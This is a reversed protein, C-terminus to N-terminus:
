VENSPELGLEARRLFLLLVQDLLELGAVLLQLGGVFFDEGHVLFQLRGVLLQGGRLLLQLRHVFLQGRQVLLELLLHVLESGHVVVEGVQQHAGIDGRDEEIRIQADLPKRCRRRVHEVQSRGIGSPGQAVDSRVQDIHVEGAVRPRHHVGQRGDRFLHGRPVASAIEGPHQRVPRFVSRHLADHQRQHVNGAELLSLALEAGRAFLDGLLQAPHCVQVPEARVEHGGTVNVGHQFFDQACGDLDSDGLLSVHLDRVLCTYQGDRRLRAELFRKEVEECADIRLARAARRDGTSFPHDDLVDRGARNEGGRREQWHQQRGANPGHM